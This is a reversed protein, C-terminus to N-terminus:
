WIDVFDVQRDGGGQRRVPYNRGHARRVDKGKVRPVPVPNDIADRAFGAPHPVVAPLIGSLFIWVRRIDWKGDWKLPEVM